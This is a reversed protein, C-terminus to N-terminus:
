ESYIERWQDTVDGAGDRLILPTLWHLGARAGKIGDILIHKPPKGAIGHVTRIRKPAIGADEMARLMELARPAPYVVAFRGGNRLLRAASKAIEAPALEGAHRAIRLRADESLLAGGAQYYPPNCVALTFRGHGLACHAARIDGELVEFAESVGNLHASRRAMDAVEAQLEVGTVRLRPCRALMLLAVAGAGCCLDIARDDPKPRAFDALLVSDTGFRFHAPHQIICFGARQLDDIREGPKLSASM